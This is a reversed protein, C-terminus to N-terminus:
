GRRLLGALARGRGALAEINSLLGNHPNVRVHPPPPLASQLSRQMSSGTGRASSVDSGGSASSICCLCTDMEPFPTSITDGTPKCLIRCVPRTKVRAACAPPPPPPRAGGAMHNALGGRTTAKAYLPVYRGDRDCTSGSSRAHRRRPIPRHGQGSTCGSPTIYCPLMTPDRKGM